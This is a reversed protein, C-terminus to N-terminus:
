SHSILVYVPAHAFPKRSNQFLGSLERIGSQDCRRPLIHLLIWLWSRDAELFLFSPGCDLRWRLSAYSWDLGNERLFPKLRVRDFAYGQNLFYQRYYNTGSPGGAPIGKREMKLSPIFFMTKPCGRGLQRGPM